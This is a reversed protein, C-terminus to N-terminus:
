SLNDGFSCQKHTEFHEAKNYKGSLEIYSREKCMLYFEGKFGEPRLKILLM